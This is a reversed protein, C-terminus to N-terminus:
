YHTKGSMGKDRSDQLVEAVCAGCSRRMNRQMDQVDCLVAATSHKDPRNGRLRQDTRSHKQSM